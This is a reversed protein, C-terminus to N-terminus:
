GDIPIYFTDLILQFFADEDVVYVAHKQEGMESHGPVYHIEGDFHLGVAQKALFVINATNLNTTVNDQVAGYIDLLSLPDERACDLAKNVLGMLVQSQRQMRDNNGEVDYNRYQIYRQALTGNLEVPKGKVFPYYNDKATVTVGGVIDVLDCIGNIYISGYGPIKLDFFRRSVADKTLECSREAGDGYSYALALQANAMGKSNGEDDLVEFECMTDRSIAILTLKKNLPDLVALVNVDSQTSGGFEAEESKQAEDIGMLLISSISDNYRYLKGNYRLTGGGQNEAGSVTINMGGGDDTMSKKGVNMLIMVTAALLLALGVLIGVIILLVKTGKSMKKKEYETNNDM